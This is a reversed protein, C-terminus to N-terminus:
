FKEGVVAKKKYHQVMGEKDILEVWVIYHGIPVLAESDDTGDWQVFSSTGSLSNKALRKVERGAVNYIIVNNLRSVKESKINIVLFDKDGDGNPTIILPELSVSEEGSGTILFQSNQYGPTASGQGTSASTWNNRDNSPLLPNIKELSVGEDSKLLPSHFSAEYDFRDMVQSKANLLVVQGTEDAYTPLSSVEIIRDSQARPYTNLLNKKSITFVLYSQPALIFSQKLLVKKNSITDNDANALMWGKLDLYNQSTNYIEVFDAGYPYPNFLAENLLIDGVEVPSPIIFTSIAKDAVNGRCDRMQRAELTYVENKQLMGEFNLRVRDLSDQKWVAKSVRSINSISFRSSELCTSDMPKSFTVDIQSNSLITITSIFPTSTDALTTQISNVSGPTGGVNSSSAAWNEGEGCPNSLDILELSYGGEDKQSDKYWASTYKVKDVLKKQANYLFVQDGSNNLSPWFPLGLVPGFDKFNNLDSTECLILYSRPKFEYNPLTVESSPDSITYGKLNLAHNSNNYLEIFEVESLGVSPVPDPMLESILIQKYSAGAVPPVIPDSEGVPAVSLDSFFHKQFFTATSQKVLVGFCRSSTVSSDIVTGETEFLQGNGTLDRELKWEYSKSCSVKLFLTNNSKDTAGDAGDILCVDVGNVKRYLSIEDKTGGIRVFYGNKVQSVLNSDDAVLHVEVYNVSSTNFSLSISMKWEANAVLFSLTSLSFQANNVANASQLRGEKVTWDSRNGSWVPNSTFDGDEFNEKVQAKSYDVLSCITLLAVIFNASVSM